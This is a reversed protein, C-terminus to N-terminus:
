PYNELGEEYNKEIKKLIEEFEETSSIRTLPNNNLAKIINNHREKEKLETYGDISYFILCIIVIVVSVLLGLSIFIRKKM